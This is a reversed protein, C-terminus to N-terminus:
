LHPFFYIKVQSIQLDYSIEACISGSYALLYFVHTKEIHERKEVTSIAVM